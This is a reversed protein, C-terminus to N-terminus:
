VSHEAQSGSSRRSRDARTPSRCPWDGDYLHKPRISALRRMCRPSCTRCASRIAFRKAHWSTPRAMRECHKLGGGALVCSFAQGHHGRGGGGDFEPPRGFETTIMILTKDLM